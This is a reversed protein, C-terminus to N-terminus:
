TYAALLRMTAAHQGTQERTWSRGPFNRRLTGRDWGTTRQIETLSAGDDLHQQVLNIDEKSMRRGCRQGKTLGLDNKARAVTRTSCGMRAAVAEVTLGQTLLEHATERTTTATTRHASM